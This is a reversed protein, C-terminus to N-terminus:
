KFTCTIQAASPSTPCCARLQGRTARGGPAEPDLREGFQGPTELAPAAHKQRLTSLTIHAGIERGCGPAVPRASLHRGRECLSQREVAAHGERTAERGFVEHARM